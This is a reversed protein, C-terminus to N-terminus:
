DEGSGHFMDWGMSDGAVFGYPRGQPRGGVLRTAETVPRSM